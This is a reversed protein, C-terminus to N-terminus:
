LILYLYLYFSGRVNLNYRVLLNDASVTLAFTNDLNVTMAMVICCKFDYVSYLLSIRRGSEKHKKVSWITEWGRGEISTERDIITYHWLTVRGDEYAALLRLEFKGSTSPHLVNYLHISM